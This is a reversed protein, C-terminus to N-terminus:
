HKKMKRTKRREKGERWIRRELNASHSLSRRMKKKRKRRRRMRTTKKKKRRM